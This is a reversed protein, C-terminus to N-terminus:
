KVMILTIDVFGTVSNLEIYEAIIKTYGEATGKTLASARANAYKLGSGIFTATESATVPQSYVFAGGPISRLSSCASMVMLIIVAFVFFRKKNM